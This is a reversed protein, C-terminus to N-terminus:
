PRAAVKMGSGCIYATHISLIFFFVLFVAEPLPVQFNFSHTAPDYFAPRQTAHNEHSLTYLVRPVAGNNDFDVAILSRTLFPVHLSFVSGDDSVDSQYQEEVLFYPSEHNSGVHIFYSLSCRFGSLAYM